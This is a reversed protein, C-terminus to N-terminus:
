EDIFVCVLGTGAGALTYLQVEVRVPVDAEGQCRSILIRATPPEGHPLLRGLQTTTPYDSARLHIFRVLTIKGYKEGRTAM